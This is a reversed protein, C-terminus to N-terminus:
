LAIFREASSPRFFSYFKIGTKFDTGDTFRKASIKKTIILGASVNQQAHIPCFLKMCPM